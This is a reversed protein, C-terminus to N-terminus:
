ILFWAALVYAKPVLWVWVAATYILQDLQLLQHLVRLM